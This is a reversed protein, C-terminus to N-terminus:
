AMNPIEDWHQAIGIIIALALLGLPISVFILFGILDRM